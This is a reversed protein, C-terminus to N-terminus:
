DCDAQQQGNIRFDAGDRLVDAAGWRCDLMVPDIIAVGRVLEAVEAQEWHLPSCCGSEAIDGSTGTNKFNLILQGRWREGHCSETM